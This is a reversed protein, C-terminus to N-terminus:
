PWAASRISRSVWLCGFSTAGYSLGLLYLLVALGKVRQSTQAPTTGEPYVWFTRKCKLCRYRHVLVEHYVTDRLSKRVQREFTFSGGVVTLLSATLPFLSPKQTSKRYSSGYSCPDAEKSKERRAIKPILM